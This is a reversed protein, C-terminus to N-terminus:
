PQRSLLAGVDQLRDMAPRFALRRLLLVALVAELTNGLGIGGTTILPLGLSANLLAAGLALGPWLRLGGLLLAALAFGAPPWVITIPGALTALLLGAKATLIYLVALM